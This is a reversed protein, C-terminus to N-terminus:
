AAILLTEGQNTYQIAETYNRDGMWGMMKQLVPDDTQFQTNDPFTFHTRCHGCSDPTSLPAGCQTCNLAELSM